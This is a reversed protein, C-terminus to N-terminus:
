SPLRANCVKLTDAVMAVKQKQMKLMQADLQPLIYNCCLKDRPVCRSGNRASSRRSLASM